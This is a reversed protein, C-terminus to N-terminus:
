QVSNFVGTCAGTPSFTGVGGAMGVNLRTKPGFVQVQDEEASVPTTSALVTIKTANAALDAKSILTTTANTVVGALGKGITITSATTSSVAFYVSLRGLTTTANPSLISCITTTATYFPQRFPSYCAGNDCLTPGERDLGPTAGFSVGDVGNRGPTGGKFLAFGGVVLALIVLGLVINEKKM